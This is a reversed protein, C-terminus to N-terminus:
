STDLRAAEACPLLRQIGGALWYFVCPLFRQIRGALRCFIHYYRIYITYVLWYFVCPLLRQIRGALRYFIHYIAFIVQIYM